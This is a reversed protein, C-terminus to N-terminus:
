SSRVLSISTSAMEHQEAALKRVQAYNTWEHSVFFTAKVPCGNPNKLHGDFLQEYVGMTNDNVPDDFTLVVFQPTDAVFLNGPIEKGSASCLFSNMASVHVPWFCERIMGFSGWEIRSKDLSTGAFVIPCNVHPSMAHRPRNNATPTRSPNRASGHDM